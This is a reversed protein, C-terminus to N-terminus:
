SCTVFYPQTGNPSWRRTFGSAITFIRYKCFPHFNPVDWGNALNQSHIRGKYYSCRKRKSTCKWIESVESGTEKRLYKCKLWSTTTFGGSFWNKAWRKRTGTKEHLSGLKPQGKESRARKWVHPLTWNPPRGVVRCELFSLVGNFCLQGKHMGCWHRYYYKFQARHSCLVAGHVSGDTKIRLTLPWPRIDGM